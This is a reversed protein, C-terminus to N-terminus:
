RLSLDAEKILTDFGNVTQPNKLTPLSMWQGILDNIQASLILPNTTQRLKELRHRAADDLCQLEILRDLPPQTPDFQRRYRLPAVAEKSHLRMVPQFLNPYPWLQDYLPCLVQLHALTDFRGHGLYARLLSPNNEEVFRNDNKHYPRSRSLLLHDRRALMNKESRDAKRYRGWMKQLYKRRENVNMPDTESM